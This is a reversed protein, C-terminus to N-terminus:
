FMARRYRRYSWSRFPKPPRAGCRRATRSPCYTPIWRCSIRPERQMQRLIGYIFRLPLCRRAFGACPQKWRKRRAPTAFGCGSACITTFSVAPCFTTFRRMMPSFFAATTRCCFSRRGTPQIGQKLLNNELRLNALSRNVTVAHRLAPGLLELLRKWSREQRDRDRMRIHGGAVLMRHPGRELLIGGGASIDEQPALWGAHYETRVLDSYPMMEEHTVARMSASQVLWNGYPNIAGYYENFQRILDPDYGFTIVGEAGPNLVDFFALHARVGGTSKHLMDAVAQWRRPNIAAEHIVPLVSRLVSLQM